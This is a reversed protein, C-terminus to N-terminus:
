SLREVELAAGSPDSAVVAPDPGVFATADGVVTPEGLKGTSGVLHLVCYVQGSTSPCGGTDGGSLVLTGSSSGVLVMGANGGFSAGAALTAADYAQWGADLGQGAPEAVWVEGGAVVEVEQVGGGESDPHDALLPGVTTVGTSRRAVLHRDTREYYLTGDPGVAAGLTRAVLRPAAPSAPTVRYVDVRPGETVLAWVTAGTSVVKVTLADSANVRDTENPLAWHSRLNGTSRDYRYVTTYTAVYLSSADASLSNVTGSVHEAVAAPGDGDVVYVVGGAPDSVFVAGDSGEAAVTPYAADPGFPLAVTASVSL